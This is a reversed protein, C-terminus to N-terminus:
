SQKRRRAAKENFKKRAAEMRRLDEPTKERKPDNRISAASPGGGRPMGPHVGLSALMATLGLASKSPHKQTPKETMTWGSLEEVDVRHDYHNRSGKKKIWVDGMRSAGTCRYRKGRWECSLIRADLWPHDVGIAPRTAKDLWEKAAAEGENQAPEDLWDYVHKM